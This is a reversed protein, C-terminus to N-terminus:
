FPQLMEAAHVAVLVPTQYLIYALDASNTDKNWKVQKDQDQQARKKHGEPLSTLPYSPSNETIQIFSGPSGGAICAGRFSREL